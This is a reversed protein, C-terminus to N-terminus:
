RKLGPPEAAKLKADNQNGSVGKGLTRTAAFTRREMRQRMMGEAFLELGKL